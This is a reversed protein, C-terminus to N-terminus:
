SLPVHGAPPQQCGLCHDTVQLYIILSASSLALPKNSM